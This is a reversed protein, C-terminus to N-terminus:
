CMQKHIWTDKYIHTHTHTNRWTGCCHSLDTSLSVWIVTARMLSLFAARVPCSSWAQFQLVLLHTVTSLRSTAQPSLLVSDLLDFFMQLHLCKLIFYLVFLSHRHPQRDNNPDVSQNSEKPLIELCDNKVWFQILRTQRPEHVDVCVLVIVIM